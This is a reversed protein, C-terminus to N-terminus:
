QQYWEIPYRKLFDIPDYVIPYTPYTIRHILLHVPMIAQATFLFWFLTRAAWRCDYDQWTKALAIDPANRALIHRSLGQGSRTAQTQM